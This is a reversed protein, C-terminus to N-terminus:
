SFNYNTIVLHNLNIENGIRGSHLKFSYNKPYEYVIYDKYLDRIFESGGVVMLCKSNTEVFRNFLSIQNERTFSDGGYDNFKSDYPQDIFYFNEENNYKEFVLNYDGEMIETRKLLETYKPNLIDKFDLNKYRGWPVNFGGNKNYRIMGRYCSKRLYLFRAARDIDNKPIFVEQDKKLKKGGGRVIYYDEETNGFSSLIEFIENSHGLKIQRYLNILEPHIDNIVNLGDFNLDFFVAGGGVFPEIFRKFNKPYFKSFQKIEDRKGGSWKCLPKLNECM